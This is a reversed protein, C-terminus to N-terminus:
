YIVLAQGRTVTARANPTIVRLGGRGHGAALHAEGRHLILQDETDKLRAFTESGLRVLAGGQHKLLVWGHSVSIWGGCGIAAGRRPDELRTRTADLIQMDGGFKAIVACPPGKPTEEGSDGSPGTREYAGSDAAILMALAAGVAACLSIATLRTRPTSPRM